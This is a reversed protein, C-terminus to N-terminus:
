TPSVALPGYPGSVMASTRRCARAIPSWNTSLPTFISTMAQLVADAAQRASARSRYSTGTISTIRGATRRATATVRVPSTPTIPVDAVM